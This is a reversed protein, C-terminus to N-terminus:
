LPRCTVGPLAVETESGEQVAFCADGRVYLTFTTPMAPSRTEHTTPPPPLVSVTSSTTLDGAGLEIQAREMAAALGTKLAAISDAGDDALTAPVVAEDVHQCAGLTIATLSSLIIRVVM